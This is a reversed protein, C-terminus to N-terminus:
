KRLVHELIITEDVVLDDEHERGKMNESWFKAHM